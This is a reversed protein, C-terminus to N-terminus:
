IQAEDKIHNVSILEVGLDNIKRLVGYLAPQDTFKGRLVTTFNPQRIVSLEEFWNDRIYGRIVIEYLM